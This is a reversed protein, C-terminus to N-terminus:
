IPSPFTKLNKSVIHVGTNFHGKILKYLYAPILKSGTTAPGVKGPGVPPGHDLYVRYNVVQQDLRPRSTPWPRLIGPLKSGKTAPGVKGPGAPPGLDLYVRYNVEQQRQVSKAQAQQHAM